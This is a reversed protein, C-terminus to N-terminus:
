APGRVECDPQGSIGGIVAQSLQQLGGLHGLLAVPHHDGRRDVAREEAGNLSVPVCRRIGGGARARGLLLRRIQATLADM